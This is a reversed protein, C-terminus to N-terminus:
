NSAAEDVLDGWSRFKHGLAALHRFAAVHRTATEHLTALDRCDDAILVKEGDTVKMHWHLWSEKRTHCGQRKFVASKRRSYIEARIAHPKTM